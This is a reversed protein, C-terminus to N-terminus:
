VLHRGNVTYAHLALDAHSHAVIVGPVTVLLAPPVRGPLHMTRVYRYIPMLCREHHWPFSVHQANDLRTSANSPARTASYAPDAM